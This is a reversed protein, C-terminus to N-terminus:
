ENFDSSEIFTLVSEMINESTFFEIIKDHIHEQITKYDWFSVSRNKKRLQRQLYQSFKKFLRNVIEDTFPYENIQLGKLRQPPFGRDSMDEWIPTNALGSLNLAMVDRSCRHEGIFRVNEIFDEITMDYHSFLIMNALIKTRPSYRSQLALLSTVAKRNIEPTTRRGLLDLLHQTNAEIGVEILYTRITSSQFLRELIDHHRLVDEPRGVLCLQVSLKQAELGRILERLLLGNALSNGGGLYFNNQRKTHWHLIEEVVKQASKFRMKSVEQCYRCRGYCGRSVEVFVTDNFITLENPIPLEDLDLFEQPPRVIIRHNEDRYAIGDIHEFSEPQQLSRLLTLLRKEGEQLIVYDVGPNERLIWEPSATATWGGWIVTKRRLKETLKRAQFYSHDMVSIGFVDAHDLYQDIKSSSVILSKVGHQKLYPDLIALASNSPFWNDINVLIIDATNRADNMHTLTEVRKDFFISFGEVTNRADNM